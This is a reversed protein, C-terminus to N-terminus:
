KNECIDLYNKVEDLQLYYVDISEIEKIIQNFIDKAKSYNGGNM